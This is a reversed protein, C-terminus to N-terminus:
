GGNWGKEGQAREPQLRCLIFDDSWHAPIVQRLHCVDPLQARTVNVEEEAGGLALPGNIEPLSVINRLVIASDQHICHRAEVLKDAAVARFKELIVTM